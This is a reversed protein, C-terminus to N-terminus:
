QILPVSGPGKIETASEIVIFIILKLINRTSEEFITNWTVSRTTVLLAFLDMPIYLQSFFEYTKRTDPTPNFEQFAAKSM